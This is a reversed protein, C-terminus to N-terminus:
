IEYCIRYISLYHIYNKQPINEITRITIVKQPNSQNSFDNWEIHHQTDHNWKIFNQQIAGCRMKISIIIFTINIYWNIEYLLYFPSYVLRHVVNRLGVVGRVIGYSIQNNWLVRQSILTKRQIIFHWLQSFNNNWSIKIKGAIVNIIIQCIKYQWQLLKYVLVLVFCECVHM